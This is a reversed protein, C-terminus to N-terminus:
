KKRKPCITKNKAWNTNLFIQDEIENLISLIEILIDRGVLEKSDILGEIYAKKMKIDGITWYAPIHIAIRRSEVKKALIKEM